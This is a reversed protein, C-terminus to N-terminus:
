NLFGYIFTKANDRTPLGAAKQNVSHIDGNLLADGYTGNDYRAMYHALCRLELGSADAGVLLWGQPVGFLARCEPGYASKGAPVQSINPRSHTARGTVAGNPNISGHIKGEKTVLKMWAVDGESLQGLRKSVMLYETLLPAEPYSLGKMVEEDVKPKGGETFEEPVWGHLATLRNAIHDRSRPNFVVTKFRPVPVGKLYGKSKNDRAPVFDALQVEWNQFTSTLTTELRDRHQILTVLLEAAAQENFCFGNRQMQSMVWQIDHELTIAQPSYNKALCKELLGSM